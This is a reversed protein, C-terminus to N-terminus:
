TTTQKKKTIVMEILIAIFSMIGIGVVTYNFASEEDSTYFTYITLTGVLIAMALQTTFKSDSYEKKFFQTKTVTLFLIIALLALLTIM